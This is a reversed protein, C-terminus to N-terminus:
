QNGAAIDGVVTKLEADTTIPSAPPPPDPPPTMRDDVPMTVAPVGTYPQDSLLVKKEEESPSGGELM